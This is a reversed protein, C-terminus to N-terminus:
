LLGSIYFISVVSGLIAILVLWLWGSNLASVFVTYKGIFGVLPPIGTLSLMALTMGVSLVKSKAGFGNLSEYGSNGANQRLVILVAFAVINALVYAVSYLLLAKASYENFAVIALLVYGTHSISSYALMRKMDKQYVATFNGIIISAAALVAITNVWVDVASPFVTQALRFFAAFGAVKVVTVMFTTIFTPSGEYVDPAWFHFPAVAIKFAMGIVMLIVGAKYILPLTDGANIAYDYIDKHFLSGSAGYLLAIGFLLFASAFSGMLFYKMAAENGAKNVKNSGALLYLAISMIELGIFFMALNGSTIMVIAGILSFLTIGFVDELSRGSTRYYQYGLLFVLITSFIMVLSFANTFSDTIMMNGFFSSANGWDSIVFGASVLLGMLVVPTLIKKKNFAGLFLTLVAFVSLAIITNM